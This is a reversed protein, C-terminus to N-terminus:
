PRASQVGEVRQNRNLSWDYSQYQIQNPSPIEQRSYKAVFALMASRGGFDDAYWDFIASLKWTDQELSNFRADNIFAAAAADMEVTLDGGRYARNRLPPCGVSACNLAFHMRPDYRRIIKREFGHLSVRTRAIVYRRERFFKRFSGVDRVSNKPRHHLVGDIVMANYANIYFALRQNDDSFQTPTAVAVQTLWAELAERHEEARDYDVFGEPTVVKSLFDDWAAPDPHYPPMDMPKEIYHAGYTGSWRPWWVFRGILVAGLLLLVVSVLVRM